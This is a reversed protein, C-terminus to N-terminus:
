LWHICLYSSPCMSPDTSQHILPHSPHTKTSPYIPVYKPLPTRLYVLLYTPHYFSVLVTAHRSMHISLASAWSIGSLSCMLQRDISTKPDSVWRWISIWHIAAVVENGWGERVGSCRFTGFTDLTRLHTITYLYTYSCLSFTPLFTM